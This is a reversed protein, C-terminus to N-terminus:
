LKNTLEQAAKRIDKVQYIGRGAIAHFREGAAKAGETIDGGQVVFGPSYFIPEVIGCKMILGKYHKIRDPKNGPVVFDTVGMKTALEYIDDPAFKRIYGTLNREIGLDGFIQTYNKNKGESLDGELYRLHTMEGGVIVGLSREQASKIWEYETIPGAQPFLIVADIRSRLMSDMFKDPVSEHIDTAAKQHDYIIPKNTYKRAIDVVIKLGVDLFSVGVKYAGVKEIDATEEVIEEFVDLMVECAPIMSRDRLIIKEM